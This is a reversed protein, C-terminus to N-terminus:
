GQLARDHWGHFHLVHLTPDRLGDGVRLEQQVRWLKVGVKPLQMLVAPLAVVRGEGLWGTEKREEGQEVEAPVLVILRHDCLLAIPCDHVCVVAELGDIVLELAGLRRLLVVLAKPRLQHAVVAAANQVVDALERLVARPQVAQLQVHPPLLFLLALLEVREPVDREPRVREVARSDPEDKDVAGGFSNAARDCVAHPQHLHLRSVQTSVRRLELFCLIHRRLFLALAPVGLTSLLGVAAWAPALGTIAPALIATNGAGARDLAQAGALRGGLLIGLQGLGEGLCRCHRRTGHPRGCRGLELRLAGARGRLTAVLLPRLHRLLTFAAPVGLVRLVPRGLGIHLPLAALRDLVVVLARLEHLPDIVIVQVYGLLPRAVHVRQRAHLRVVHLLDVVDKLRVNLRM